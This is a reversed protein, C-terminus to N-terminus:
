WASLFCLAPPSTLGLRPKIYGACEISSLLSFLFSFLLPPLLFGSNLHQRPSCRSVIKLGAEVGKRCGTRRGRDTVWCSSGSRSPGRLALISAGRAQDRWPILLLLPWGVSYNCGVCQYCLTIFSFESTTFQLSLSM